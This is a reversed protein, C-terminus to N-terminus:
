EIALASVFIINVNKNYLSQIQGSFLTYYLSVESNKRWGCM